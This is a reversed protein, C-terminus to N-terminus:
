KIIQTKLWNFEVFSVVVIIINGSEVPVVVVVVNNGVNIVVFGFVIVVVTDTILGFVVNVVEVDVVEVGGDVEVVCGVGVDVVGEFPNFKCNFTPKSNALPEFSKRACNPKPWDAGAIVKAICLAALSCNILM